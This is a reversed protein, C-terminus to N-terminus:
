YRIDDKLLDFRQSLPIVNGSEDRTVADSIREINESGPFSVAGNGVQLVDGNRLLDGEFRQWFESVFQPDDWLAAGDIIDPPNLAVEANEYSEGLYEAAFDIMEGTLPRSKKAMWLARRKTAGGWYSQWPEGKIFQIVFGKEGANGGHYFGIPLTDNIADDVMRQAKEMDGAGVAAMYEDDNVSELLFRSCFKDFKRTM